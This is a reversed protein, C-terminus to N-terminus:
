KIKVWMRGNVSVQLGEPGWKEYPEIKWFTARLREPHLIRTFINAKILKGDKTCTLPTGPKYERDVYALVFGGIAIDLEKQRGKKGLVDGATDSHIGVIGNEAYKQSKYYKEGDFCYVYGPEVELDEQVEIADTIDNWVAHYVRSASIYGTAYLGACKINRGSADLAYTYGSNVSATSSITDQGGGTLSLCTTTTSTYLFHTLTSTTSGASIKNANVTSSYINARTTSSGISAFVTTATIAGNSGSITIATTGTGIDLSGNGYVNVTSAANLSGVTASGSVNLTGAVTSNAAVSLNTATLSNNINLSSASANGSSVVGTTVSNKKIDIANATVNESVELDVLSRTSSVTLTGRLLSLEGAEIKNTISLSGSITSDATVTLSDGKVLLAGNVTASKVSASSGVSISGASMSDMVTLFADTTSTGITLNARSTLTDTIKANNTVTLVGSITSDATVTLSSGNVTLAGNITASSVSVNSDASISGASMTGTVTLDANTTSTGVILTASSATLTNTVKANNTVTLVGSITSDTTVTLSSGNIVLDGNITTSEVSADSGVTISGVSATGGVSLDHSVDLLGGVDLTGVTANGDTHSFSGITQNTVLLNGTITSGTSGDVFLAAQPTTSSGIRDSDIRLLGSVDLAGVTADNNVQITGVTNESNDSAVLLAPHTTDILTSSIKLLGNQILLNGNNGSAEGITVDDRFTKSGTFRDPLTVFLSGGTSTTSISDRVYLTPTTSTFYYYDTGETGIPSGPTTSKKRYKFPNKISGDGTRTYYQVGNEANSNGTTSSVSQNVPNGVNFELSSLSIEDGNQDYYITDDNIFGSAVTYSPSSSSNTIKVARYNTNTATNENINERTNKYLDEVEENDKAGVKVFGATEMTAMEFVGGLKSWHEAGTGASVRVYNTGVDGEPDADTINWVVGPSGDSKGILQSWTCSGEIKYIKSIDDIRNRIDQYVTNLGSLTILQDYTVSM